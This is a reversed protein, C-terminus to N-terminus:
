LFPKLISHFTHDFNFLKLQSLAISIGSTGRGSAGGIMVISVSTLITYVSVHKRVLLLHSSM